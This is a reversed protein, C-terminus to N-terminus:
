WWKEFRALVRTVPDFTCYYGGDYSFTVKETGSHQGVYMSSVSAPATPLFRIWSQSSWDYGVIGQATVSISSGDLNSKRFQPYLPNSLIDAAPWGGALDPVKPVEVFYDISASTDEFVLLATNGRDDGPDTFVGRIWARLGAAHSPSGIRSWSADYVDYHMMGSQDSSFGTLTISGPSPGVIAISNRLSASGPLKSTLLLGTPAASAVINGIIITNDLLRTVAADGVFSAGAPPVTTVIDNMTFRNQVALTPSLVFLHTRSPDFSDSSFLLVYETGLLKLIALRFSAGDAAAIDGSLDVQASMQGLDNFFVGTIVTGCSALSLLLVAALLV